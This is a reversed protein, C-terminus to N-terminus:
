QAKCLLVQAARKKRLQSDWWCCNYKAFVTTEVFGEAECLLLLAILDKVQVEDGPCM